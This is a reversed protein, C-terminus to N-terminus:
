KQYEQTREKLDKIEALLEKKEDELQKIKSECEEILSANILSYYTDEDISLDKEKLWEDLQDQEFDGLSSGYKEYVVAKFLIKEGITLNELQKM